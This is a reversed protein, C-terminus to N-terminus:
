KVVMGYRPIYIVCHDALPTGGIDHSSGHRHITQPTLRDSKSKTSIYTPLLSLSIPLSPLHNIKIQIYQQMKLEEIGRHQRQSYEQQSDTFVAPQMPHFQRQHQMHIMKAAVFLKM